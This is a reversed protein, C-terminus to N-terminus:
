VGVFEGVRRLGQESFGLRASEADLSLIPPGYVWARTGDPQRRRSHEGAHMRHWASLLRRRLLSGAYTSFSWGATPSYTRALSCLILRGEAELEEREDASLMLGLNRVGTAVFAAPDTINLLGTASV